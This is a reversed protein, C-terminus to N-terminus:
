DLGGGFHEFVVWFLCFCELFMKEIPKSSHNKLGGCPERLLGEGSSLVLRLPGEPPWSFRRRVVKKHLFVVPMVKQSHEWDRFFTKEVFSSGRWALCPLSFLVSVLLTKM